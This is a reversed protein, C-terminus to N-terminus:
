SHRLYAATIAALWTDQDGKWRESSFIEVENYGAFGAAEVWGRIKAIEICGEGMLGRDLLMDNTPVRWDCIHFGYLNGNAGCRAIERELDPDWWLHYVDVAIGVWESALAEALANASALTNVASRTDAYMPHLPEIALRVGTAAAEDILAAIGDQIQARSIELSQKPEAGCVLVLMDAGLAAGERLAARNSELAKSRESAEVGCFFGGRVLAPVALGADRIRKGIVNPDRGELTDRWVSIGGVGARAYKEIATEIDWPKTTITHIACNRLDKLPKAM